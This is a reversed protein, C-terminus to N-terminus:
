QLTVKDRTADITGLDVPPADERETVIKEKRKYKPLAALHANLLGDNWACRRYVFGPDVVFDGERLQELDIVLGGLVDRKAPAPRLFEVPVASYHPDGEGTDLSLFKFIPYTTPLVLGASDKQFYGMIHFQSIVGRAQYAQGEDMNRTSVAAGTAKEVM